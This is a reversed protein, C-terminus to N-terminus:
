AELYTIHTDEKEEIELMKEELESRCAKAQVMQVVLVDVKTTCTQLAMLETYVLMLQATIVAAIVKQLTGWPSQMQQAIQRAHETCFEEM